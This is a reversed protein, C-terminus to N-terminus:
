QMIDRIWDLHKTVDVYVGPYGKLACGKGWSVVGVLKFSGTSPNKWFLPGGSDGQCSDIGGNELDGACIDYETPHRTYYKYAKQCIDNAVWPVEVWQLTESGRHSGPLLDGWGSVGFKTGKHFKKTDSIRALPIARAKSNGTLQIPEKLEVIALDHEPHEYFKKAEYFKEPGEHTHLEHEGTLVGTIGGNICHRATLVYRSSLISGGCWHFDNPHQRFRLSIQWPFQNPKAHQGGVIQSRPYRVERLISAEALLIQVTSLLLAATWKKM